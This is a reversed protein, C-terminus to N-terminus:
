VINERDRRDRLFGAILLPCSCILAALIILPMYRYFMILYASFLIISVLLGGLWVPLSSRFFGAPRISTNFYVSTSFLTGAPTIFSLLLIQLNDLIITYQVYLAVAVFLIIASLLSVFVGSLSRGTWLAAIFPYFLSGAVLGTIIYPISQSTGVSNLLGTYYFFSISITGNWMALFPYYHREASGQMAPPFASQM